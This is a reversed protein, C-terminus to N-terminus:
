PNKEELGYEALLDAETKLGCLIEVFERRDENTLYPLNRRILILADEIESRGIEPSGHLLHDYPIDLARSIRSLYKPAPVRGGTVYRSIAAETLGVRDALERQTIGRFRLASRIRAGVSSGTLQAFQIM